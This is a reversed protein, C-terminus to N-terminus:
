IKGQLEGPTFIPFKHTIQTLHINSSKTIQLNSKSNSVLNFMMFM